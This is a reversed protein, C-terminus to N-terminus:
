RNRLVPLMGSERGEKEFLTLTTGGLALGLNSRFFTEIFTPDVIAPAASGSDMQASRRSRGSATVGWWKSTRGTAAM